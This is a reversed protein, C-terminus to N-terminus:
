PRATWSGCPGYSFSPPVLEAAVARNSLTQAYAICAAKKGKGVVGLYWAQLLAQALAQQPKQGDTFTTKEALLGDQALTAKLTALAGDLDPAAERMGHYLAVALAPDLDTKGTLTQSVARFDDLGPGATDLAARARTASLLRGASGALLAAGIVQLARRRSTPAPKM